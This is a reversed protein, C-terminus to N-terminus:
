FSKEQSKLLSRGFTADTIVYTKSPELGKLQVQARDCVSLPRRFALIIGDGNEPRNYQSVAWNSDDMPSMVMPYFDCSLFPRM